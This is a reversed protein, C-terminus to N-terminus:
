RQCKTTWKELLKQKSMWFDEVWIYGQLKQGKNDFIDITGYRNFDGIVTTGKLANVYGDVLVYGSQTSIVFCKSNSLVIVGTDAKVKIPCLLFFVVFILSQFINRM